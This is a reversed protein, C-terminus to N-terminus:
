ENKAHVKKEKPNTAGKALPLNANQWSLIGGQLRYVKEIGAKKLVKAAKVADSGARSNIVIPRGRLKELDSFREKLEKLPFSQADLIHGTAFEAHDRVDLVLADDRNILKTVETPSVQAGGYISGIVLNAVLLVLIVALAIFLFLNQVIFEQFM